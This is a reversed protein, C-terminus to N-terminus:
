CLNGVKIRFCVHFLTDWGVNRPDCYHENGKLSVIERHTNKSPTIGIRNIILCYVFM